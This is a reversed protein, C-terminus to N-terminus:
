DTVASITCVLEGDALTRAIIGHSLEHRIATPDAFGSMRCALPVADKRGIEVYIRDSGLAGALQSCAADLLADGGILGLRAVAGWLERSSPVPGGARMRGSPDPSSQM